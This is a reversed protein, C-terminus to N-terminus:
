QQQIQCGACQHQWRPIKMAVVARLDFLEFEGLVKIQDEFNNWFFLHLLM